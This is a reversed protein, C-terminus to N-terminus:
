VALQGAGVVLGRLLRPVVVLAALQGLAEVMLWEGGVVVVVLPAWTEVLM